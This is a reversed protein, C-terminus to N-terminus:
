KVEMRSPMKSLNDALYGLFTITKGVPFKITDVYRAPPKEDIPEQEGHRMLRPDNHQIPKM